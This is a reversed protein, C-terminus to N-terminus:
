LEARMNDLEPVTGQVVVDVPVSVPPPAPEAEPTLVAAPVGGNQKREISSRLGSGFGKETEHTVPQRLDQPHEADGAGLVVIFM